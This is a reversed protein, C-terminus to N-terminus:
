IGLTLKPPVTKLVLYADFSVAIESNNTDAVAQFKLLLPGPFKKWPDYERDVQRDHGAHFVERTIFGGTALDANEKVLLTLDAEAGSGSGALISIHINRLYLDQINPVACMTQLTHGEGAQIAATVTSDTQATAKIIGANIGGSGFTVGHMEQVIVYSAVSAVPTTGNMTITETSEAADWATLGSISITRLGTGASADAADASVIDHKRATTPPVWIDTSTAGDAGDWIDTKIGNDCDLARGFINLGVFGPITGMAVDMGIPRTCFFTGM